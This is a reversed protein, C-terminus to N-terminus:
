VSFPKRAVVWLFTVPVGDEDATEERASEIRLGAAEVLQRNTASDFHSWYMPAGLWNEEYGYETATAGMTAVFLGGPRLWRAVNRLLAPHEHRPLHIISYFAAVADFMEPPFALAAMDAQVFTAAPVNMRALDVHRASIDVGTVAFRPALERALPVGTGCGLELVAAGPPLTDLLVRAYRERDGSLTDGAWAAYREAIRDYGERVIRKPDM